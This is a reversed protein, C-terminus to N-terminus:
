GLKSRGPPQDHDARHELLEDYQEVLIVCDSRPRAVCTLVFNAAEDSPYYRKAQSHDVEGELLKAGCTICWGQQCDASLWIDAARAAALISEDEDVEITRSEGAADLESDAPIRLEVDWTTAATM